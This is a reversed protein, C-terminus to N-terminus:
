LKDHYYQYLDQQVHVEDPTSRRLLTNSMGSDIAFSSYTDKLHLDLYMGLEERILADKVPALTEIRRNLNRQMLDSSGIYYEPTGGNHFRFIRAHELYRDILAKLVIGESIGPVGPRLCCIGRILLIVSVGEKAARCLLRIMQDDVLNNIKLVIEAKEGQKAFEMERKILATIRNRLSFPAVMLENFKYVRFSSALMKFVKNVEGSLAKGATLLILDSYLRATHENFNGTSIVAIRHSGSGTPNKRHIACLKSHVKLGELSSILTVNRENSLQETWYLNAEENFRAQVEIFVTVRKGNRAANILANVISSDDAVRYLTMKISIVLPDIAAERLLDIIYGFRHYPLSLLYDQELIQTILSRTNDLNQHRLPPQRTFYLEHRDVKPFSILAGINHYRGGAIINDCTELQVHASLFQWLHNPMTRDYVVRVPDGSSRQRISLSIKEYLSKTVVEDISYEADRTITVSYAEFHDHNFAHFISALNMRIIDDIIIFTYTGSESPLPIYRPLTEPIEILAYQSNELDDGSSMTIALYTSLNNLFPFAKSKRLMIPFLKGRIRERFYTATWASQRQTLSTGDNFYINYHSLKACILSYLEESRRDLDTVRKLISSITNRIETKNILTNQQSEGLLRHLSGVRVSYFEDLNSHFIGLFRMRELLPMSEQEASILVRENFDLWSLERNVLAKKLNGSQM